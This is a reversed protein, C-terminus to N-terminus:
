GPLVGPVPQGAYIARIPNGDCAGELKGPTRAELQTSFSEVGQVHHVEACGVTEHVRRPEAGDRHWHCGSAFDLDACPQRKSNSQTLGGPHAM